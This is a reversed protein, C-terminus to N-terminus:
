LKGGASDHAGREQGQGVYGFGSCSCFRATGNFRCSKGGNGLIGNSGGLCGGQDSGAPLLDEVIGPRDRISRQTRGDKGQQLLGRGGEHLAICGLTCPLGEVSLQHLSTKDIGGFRIGGM